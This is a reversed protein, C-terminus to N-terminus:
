LRGAAVLRLDRKRESGRKHGRQKLWLTSIDRRKRENNPNQETPMTTNSALAVPTPPTVTRAKALLLCM